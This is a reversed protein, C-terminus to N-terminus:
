SCRSPFLDHRTSLTAAGPSFNTCKRLVFHFSRMKLISANPANWHCKSHVSIEFLWFCFMLSILSHVSSLRTSVRASSLVKDSTTTLKPLTEDSPTARNKSSRRRFASSASRNRPQTMSSLWSQYSSVWSKWEVRMRWAAADCVVWTRM